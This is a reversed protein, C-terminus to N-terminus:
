SLYLAHFLVDKLFDWACFPLHFYVSITAMYHNIRRSTPTFSVLIDGCNKVALDLLVLYSKEFKRLTECFEEPLSSLTQTQAPSCRGQLVAQM